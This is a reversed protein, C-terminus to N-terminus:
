LCAAHRSREYGTRADGRLRSGFSRARPVVASDRGGRGGFLTRAASVPKRGSEILSFYVSRTGTM